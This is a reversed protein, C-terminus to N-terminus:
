HWTASLTTRWGLTHFSFTHIAEVHHISLALWLRSAYPSNDKTNYAGQYKYNTDIKSHNPVTRNTLTHSQLKCLLVPCHRFQALRTSTMGKIAQACVQAFFHDTTNSDQEVKSELEKPKHPCQYNERQATHYAKVMAAEFCRIGQCHSGRM